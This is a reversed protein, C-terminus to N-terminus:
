PPEASGLLSFGEKQKSLLETQAVVLISKSSHKWCKNMELTLFLCILRERAQRQCSRESLDKREDSPM